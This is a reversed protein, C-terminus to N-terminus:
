EEHTKIIIKEYRMKRIDIIGKEHMKGIEKEREGVIREKTIWCM